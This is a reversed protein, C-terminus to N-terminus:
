FKHITDQIKLDFKDGCAYMDKPVYEVDLMALCSLFPVIKRKMKMKLTEAFNTQIEVQLLKCLHQM